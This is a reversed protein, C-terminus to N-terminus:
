GACCTQLVFNYNVGNDGSALSIANIVTLSEPNGDTAGNVTGVFEGDAIYGSPPTVTVSYLGAALGNFQYFGNVDTVATLTNSQGDTLTLTVGAVPLGTNDTVFGSLGAPANNIVTPTACLAKIGLDGNDGPDIRGDGNLDLRGNIVNFGNFQPHGALTSTTDANNITGDRNLDIMGNIIRYGGLTVTDFTLPKGGNVTAAATLTISHGDAGISAIQDGAPLGQTTVYEGVYLGSTNSLGTVTISGNTLTGNMNVIPTNDGGDVKGSLNYDIQGNYVQYDGSNHNNTISNDTNLGPGDGVVSHFGSAVGTNHYMTMCVDPPASLLFPNQYTASYTYTFTYVTVNDITNSIFEQGTGDLALGTIFTLNQAGSATANATLTISHGDAGISAIRTTLEPTGTTPNTPLKPIPIGTGALSEGVFLGATSPLGWVINSGATLTGTLVLTFTLSTGSPLLSNATAAQSLTVQSSSDVSLVTTGAQIGTGTVTQGPLLGLTSGTPFTLINSGSTTVANLILGGNATPSAPDLFSAGYVPTDRSGIAQQFSVSLSHATADYIATVNAPDASGPNLRIELLEFDPTFRSRSRRRTKAADTMTFRDVLKRIYTSLMNRM